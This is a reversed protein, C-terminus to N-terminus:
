SARRVAAAVHEQWIQVPVKGPRAELGPRWHDKPHDGQTRSGEPEPLCVARLL